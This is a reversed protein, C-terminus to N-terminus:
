RVNFCGTIYILGLLSVTWRRYYHFLYYYDFIILVFHLHAM